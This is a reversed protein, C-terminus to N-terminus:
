LDAARRVDEKRGIGSREAWQDRIGQAEPPLDALTAEVPDDPYKASFGRKALVKMAYDLVTVMIMFICSVAAIGQIYRYEYIPKLGELM